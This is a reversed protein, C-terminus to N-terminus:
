LLLYKCARIILNNLNYYNSNIYKIFNGFYDLTMKTHSPLYNPLYDVHLMILLDKKFITKLFSSLFGVICM